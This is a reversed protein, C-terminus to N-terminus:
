KPSATALLKKGLVESIRRVTDPAPDAFGFSDRMREFLRALAELVLRENEEQIAALLCVFALDSRLTHPM